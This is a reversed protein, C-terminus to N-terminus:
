AHNKDTPTVPEPTDPAAESGSHAGDAVPEDVEADATEAQTDRTEVPAQDQVTADDPEPEPGPQPSDQLELAPEVELEGTRAAEETDQLHPEILYKDPEPTVDIAKNIDEKISSTVADLPDRVLKTADDLNSKIEKLDKFDEHETVTSVVDGASKKLEALGRGLNKALGPLKKPGVIFLAVVLIVLLEPMGIGFM